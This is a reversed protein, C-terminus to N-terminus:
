LESTIVFCAVHCIYFNCYPLLIDLLSYSMCHLLLLMILGIFIITSDTNRDLIQKGFEASLTFYFIRCATSFFCSLYYM